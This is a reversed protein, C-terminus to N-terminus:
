VWVFFDRCHCTEEESVVATNTEEESVVAANSTTTEKDPKHGFIAVDAVLLAGSIFATVLVVWRPLTHNGDDWGDFLPIESLVLLSLALGVAAAVVCIWHAPHWFHWHKRRWLSGRKPWQEKERSNSVHDTGFRVHHTVFKAFLIVVFTAVAGAYFDVPVQPQDTCLLM